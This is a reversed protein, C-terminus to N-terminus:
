KRKKIYEIWCTNCSTLPPRNDLGALFNEDEYWELTVEGKLKALIEVLEMEDAENILDHAQERMAAVTM